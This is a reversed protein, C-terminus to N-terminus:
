EHSNEKQYAVPGAKDYCDQDSMPGPDPLYQSWYDAFDERTLVYGCGQLFSFFDESLDTWMIDGDSVKHEVSHEDDYKLFVISMIKEKVGSPEIINELYGCATIL